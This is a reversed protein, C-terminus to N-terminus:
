RGGAATYTARTGILRGRANYTRWGTNSSNYVAQGIRRGRADYQYQVNGRRIGTVIHRGSADYGWAMNGRACFTMGNLGAKCGDAAQAVMCSAAILAAVIFVYKM